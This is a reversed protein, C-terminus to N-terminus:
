GALWLRALHFVGWAVLWAVILEYVVAIAAQRRGFENRIAAVTAACPTYLLTYAM